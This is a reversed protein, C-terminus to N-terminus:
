RIREPAGPVPCGLADFLQLLGMKLPTRTYGLKDMARASSYRWHHQYVRLTERTLRPLAGFAAARQEDLMAALWAAPYPIEWRPAKVGSFEELIGFFDTLSADEGGLIYREAPESKELALWHGEAVDAVYSFTMVRDGPGLLGPIRRRRFDQVVRTIYNGQTKRGPGFIVAPYVTVIDHHRAWERAILEAERKSRGYATPPEESTWHDESAAAGTGPGLAFFSSTFVVREVSANFAAQFVNRTGDANVRFFDAPDRRWISVLAAAHIVARCGDVARRMSEPDTVDGKIWEVGQISEPPPEHHILGRMAAGRAAGARLIAQGLYGAAGTILVTM